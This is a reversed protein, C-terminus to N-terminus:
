SAHCCDVTRLHPTVHCGRLTELCDSGIGSLLSKVQFYLVHANLKRAFATVSLRM